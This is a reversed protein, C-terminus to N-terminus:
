WFGFHEITMTKMILSMNLAYKADVLRGSVM